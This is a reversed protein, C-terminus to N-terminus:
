EDDTTPMNDAEPDTDFTDTPINGETFPIGRRKRLGLYLLASGGGLVAASGVSIGLILLTNGGKDEGGDNPPSSPDIPDSPEQPKTKFGIEVSINETINSITLNESLEVQVGNVTIFDLIYGEDPAISVILDSGYLVSTVGSPTASGGSLCSISVSMSMREYEVEINTDARAESITYSSVIGLSEGNVRVDKLRYGVDPTFSLTLTDFTTIVQSAGEPSVSGGGIVEVNVKYELPVAEFQATYTVEGKVAEIEPSWGTFVYRYLEDSPKTPAVSSFSPVIGYLVRSTTIRSGDWNNWYVTYRKLSQKVDAMGINPNGPDVVIPRVYWNNRISDFSDAVSYTYQDTDSPKKVFLYVVQGSKYVNSKDGSTAFLDASMYHESVYEPVSYTVEVDTIPKKIASGVKIHIVGDEEYVFLSKSFKGKSTPGYSNADNLIYTYGDEDDLVEVNLTLTFIYTGFHGESTSPIIQSTYFTEKNNGSGRTVYATKINEGTEIVLYTGKSFGATILMDERANEIVLGNKAIDALELESVATGNIELSSLCYGKTPKLIYHVVDDSSVSIKDALGISGNGDINLEINYYDEEEWHAYVFVTNSNNYYKKYHSSANLTPSEGLHHIDDWSVRYVGNEGEIKKSGNGYDLYWGEFTYGERTPEYLVLDTTQSALENGYNKPHNVGGGLDYYVYVTQLSTDEYYEFNFTYDLEYGSLSTVTHTVTDGVGDTINYSLTPVSMDMDSYVSRHLPLFSITGSLKNTYIVYNKDPATFSYFELTSGTNFSNDNKENDFTVGEGFMGYTVFFNNLYTDVRDGDTYRVLVKYQGLEADDASIYFRKSEGDVKVDFLDTVEDKGLYIDIKKISVGEPARYSYELSVDDYFINKQKTTGSTATFDGHYKGKVSIPYSYGSEIKDYFYFDKDTNTVYKFGNISTINTDEYFIYAIGDKSNTETYSNLVMWAGKFTRPKDEGDVTLEREYNDDWGILSIAHSSTTNKQHPILYFSEVDDQFGSRFNFALYLSGHEVIHRKIDEVQENTKYSTTSDNVLCSALDDNSYEYFFNYYDDANENSVVYSSQYPLDSELMVGANQMAKYHTGSGSGAGLKNYGGTCYATIGTWLESFDYYEGTAKMLTTSAAMTSAFNWCYGHADQDQALVVYEDRMCYADPLETKKVESGVSTDLAESYALSEFAGPVIICNFTAFIVLISCLFSKIKM